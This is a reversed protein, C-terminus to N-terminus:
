LLSKKCTCGLPATVGHITVAAPNIGYYFLAPYEGARRTGKYLFKYRVQKLDTKVAM